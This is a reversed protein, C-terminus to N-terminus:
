FLHAYALIFGTFAQAVMFITVAKTKFNKLNEIDRLAAKLQPPSAVDDIKEKWAKLEIVRDEKAKLVTMEQKIDQLEFRLAEIGVSLSELRELVLKSYENWGNESPAM